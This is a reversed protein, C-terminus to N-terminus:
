KIWTEKLRMLATEVSKPQWSLQVQAKSSDLSCDHNRQVLDTLDSMKVPILRDPNWEFIRSMILGFNFRTLRDPGGLNLVQSTVASKLIREIAFSADGVWLPTRYQDTFLRLSGGSDIVAKMKGAFSRYLGNDPGFMLACRLIVAKSNVERIRREAELKGKAYVLLPNPSNENHPGKGSYLLDTSTFIFLSNCKSAIRALAESAEVNIRWAREPDKECDDPQSMAATHVIADLRAQKLYTEISNPRELDLEVLEACPGAGSSRHVTGIIDFRSGLDCCLNYGLFGSVGTILVRKRIMKTM